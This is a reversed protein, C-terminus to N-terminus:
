HEHLCRDSTEVTLHAIIVHADSIPDITFPATHRRTVTTSLREAAERISPPFAGHQQIMRLREMADGRRAPEARTAMWSEVALIVARRACVRAKGENGAKWAIEAARLEQDILLPDSM